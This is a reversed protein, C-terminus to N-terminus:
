SDSHIGAVVEIIWREDRTVNLAVTIRQQADEVRDSWCRCGCEACEVMTVERPVVGNELWRDGQRAVDEFSRGAEVLGADYEQGIEVPVLPMEVHETALLARAGHHM